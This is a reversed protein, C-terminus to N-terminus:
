IYLTGPGAAGAGAADLLGGEQTAMAVGAAMAESSLTPAALLAPTATQELCPSGSIVISGEPTLHPLVPSPTLSHSPNSDRGADVTLISLTGMGDEFNKVPVPPALVSASALSTNDMNCGEQSTRNGAEGERSTPHPQKKAGAVAYPHIKKASVAYLGSSEDLDDSPSNIDGNEKLNAPGKNYTVSDDDEKIGAYTSDSDPDGTVKEYPNAGRSKKQTELPQMQIQQAQPVRARKPRSIVDYHGDDEDEDDTQMGAGTVAPIEPLARDHSRASVHPFSAYQLTHELAM